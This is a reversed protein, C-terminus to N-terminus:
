ETIRSVSSRRSYVTISGIVIGAPWCLHFLNLMKTKQQPYMSAVLPNCVAEVMGYGLGMFVTALFLSILDTALLTAVIGTAHLVFAIWMGKENWPFRRDPRKNNRTRLAGALIMRSGSGITCCRRLASLFRGANCRIGTTLSIVEIGQGPVNSTITSEDDSLVDVLNGISPSSFSVTNATRTVDSLAEDQNPQRFEGEVFVRKAPM